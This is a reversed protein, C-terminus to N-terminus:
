QKLLLTVFINIYPGAVTLWTKLPNLSLKIQSITKSDKEKDVISLIEKTKSKEEDSLESKDILSLIENLSNPNATDFISRNFARSTHGCSLFELTYDPNVTEGVVEVRKNCQVCNRHQGVL